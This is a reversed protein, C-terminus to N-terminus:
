GVSYRRDRICMKGKDQVHNKVAHTVADKEGSMEVANEAFTNVNNNKVISDSNDPPFVLSSQAYVSTLDLDSQEVADAKKGYILEGHYKEKAVVATKATAGKNLAKKKEAVSKVYSEANMSIVILAIEILPLCIFLLVPGKIIAGAVFCFLLSVGLIILDSLFFIHILSLTYGASIFVCSVDLTKKEGDASMTEIAHLPNGILATVTADMNEAGEVKDGGRM